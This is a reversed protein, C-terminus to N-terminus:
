IYGEKVKVEVKDVQDKVNEIISIKTGNIMQTNLQVMIIKNILDIKNDIIINNTGSLFFAKFGKTKSKVSIIEAKLTFNEDVTLNLELTSNVHLYASDYKIDYPNKFHFSIM